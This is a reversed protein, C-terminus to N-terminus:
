GTKLKRYPHEIQERFQFKHEAVIRAMLRASSAAQHDLINGAEDYAIEGM